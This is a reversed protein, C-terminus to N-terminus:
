QDYWKCINEIMWCTTKEIKLFILFFKQGHRIAHPIKNGWDLISAMGGAPSTHHGLWQVELSTGKQWKMKNITERATYFSKLKMLDWKNLKLKIIKAQPSLTFFINSHNIDFLTKSINEELLKITEQRVYLGKIWESNFCNPGTRNKSIILIPIFFSKELYLSIINPRSQQVHRVSDIGWDQHAGRWQIETCIIRHRKSGFLSSETM